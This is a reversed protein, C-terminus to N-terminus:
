WFGLLAFVTVRAPNMCAAFCFSCLPSLGRLRDPPVERFEQPLTNLPSTPWEERSVKQGDIILGSAGGSRPPPAIEVGLQECQHIVRGYNPGIVNAGAEPRGPVQDLTLVRGGVRERAELVTVQIGRSELLSAAYLGSLGAGIVVVHADQSWGRIPWASYGAALAATSIFRRRSLDIM